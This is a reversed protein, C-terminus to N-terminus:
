FAGRGTVAPAFTLAIIRLDRGVSLTEIYEREVALREEFTLQGRGFVQMPGTMGPRVDLRFLHEPRYRKVLDLQEPRPGVLSMDGRLVNFLQPLEDLSTRRLLRGVRTVRPDDRLKFMPDSLADLPVLKPLQAEADAFMTRFKRMLFPRGGVGARQQKFIVSGPSDIRVALAVMAFVPVLAVIAALAVGVDLVRKLLLTSRSIDWTNYEVVPLDAIHNLRVATGFMGRAPPVVSLKVKERRCLQLLEAIIAEDIWQSALLVRDMSALSGNSDRIEEVLWEDRQDVVEVHIDPFLELKRRTADALPGSGVVLAREPPVIRRWIFRSFGRLVAASSAAVVFAGLAGALELSRAPVVWLFLLMAASGTLAWVFIRPLEDVTLHRLARHDADYLGSLKALVIWGPVFVVAWIAAETGAEFVFALSLSVLVGATADAIALMRRRLADRSSGARMESRRDALEGAVQSGVSIATAPAPGSMERRAM